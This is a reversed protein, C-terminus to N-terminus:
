LAEAERKLKAMRFGLERRDNADQRSLKAEDVPLGFFIKLTQLEGSTDGKKQYIEALVQLSEPCRNRALNSSAQAALVAGDIDKLGLRTLAENRRATVLWLLGIPIGTESLIDCKQKERAKQLDMAARFATEIAFEYLNLATEYDQKGLAKEAEMSLEYGKILAEMNYNNNSETSQQDDALLLDLIKDGKVKKFKAPTKGEPTMVVPGNGCFSCCVGPEVLVGPPALAQMKRLTAEAGDAICGPSLCVEYKTSTSQLCSPSLSSRRQGPLNIPFSVTYWVHVGVLLAQAM